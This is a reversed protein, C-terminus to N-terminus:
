QFIRSDDKESKKSKKSKGSLEKSSIQNRGREKAKYLEQDAAKFLESPEDQPTPIISACGMSITLINKVESKKHHIELSEIGQRLKEGVVKAGDLDVESLVVIFEEGGYRAVLDSPRRCLSKLHKAVKQLCEDGAQHGYTDNYLKFYDVDAMIVSIPRQNRVARRWELKFVEDFRRYNPIGTLTDLLVLKKLKLNARKIKRNAEELQRTREKVLNELYKKELVREITIQMRRIHSGWVDKSLYDYAGERMAQVALEEDGQGTVIIFPIDMSKLIEFLDFATGDGLIYDLIAADFTENKLITKSEDVSSVIVFDYNFKKRSAFRKFAKQDVLDDEVFLIKGKKEMRSNQFNM